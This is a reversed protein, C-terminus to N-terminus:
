IQMQLDRVNTIDENMLSASQNLGIASINASINQASLNQQAMQNPANRSSKHPKVYMQDHGGNHLPQQEPLTKSGGNSHPPGM